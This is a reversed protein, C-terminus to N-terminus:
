LINISNSLVHQTLNEIWSVAIGCIQFLKNIIKFSSFKFCRKKTKCFKACLNNNINRRYITIKVSCSINSFWSFTLTKENFLRVFVFLNNTKGHVLFNFGILVSHDLTRPPAPHHADGNAAWLPVLGQPRRALPGSPPRCSGWLRSPSPCAGCLTALLTRRSCAGVPGALGWCLPYVTLYNCM